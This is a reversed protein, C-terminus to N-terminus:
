KYRNSFFLELENVGFNDADNVKEDTNKKVVEITKDIHHIEKTVNIVKEDVKEIKNDIVKNVQMASDINIQLSDIRHRYEKVDTKIGETNLINFVLLGGIILLLFTNTNKSLYEKM